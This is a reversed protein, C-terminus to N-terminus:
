VMRKLTQDILLEVKDVSLTPGHDMRSSHKMLQNFAGLQLGLSNKIEGSDLTEGCSFDDITSDDQFAFPLDDKSDEDHSRASLSFLKSDESDNWATSQLLKMNPRPMSTPSIRQMNSKHRALYTPTDPLSYEINHLLPDHLPSVSYGISSLDESFHYSRNSSDKRLALSMSTEKYTTSVNSSGSMYDMRPSSRSYTELYQRTPTFAFPLDPSAGLGYGEKSSNDSSGLKCSRYSHPYYKKYSSIRGEREPLSTTRTIDGHDAPSPRGTPCKTKYLRRYENRTGPIAMPSSLPMRQQRPAHVGLLEPSEETGLVDDDIRMKNSFMDSSPCPTFFAGDLNNELYLVQVKFEGDTTDVPALEYKGMMQPIDHGKVSSHIKYDINIDGFDSTEAARRVRQAPLIRLCSYLSRMLLSLRKYLGRPSERAAQARDIRLTNPKVLNPSYSIFWRELLTTKSHEVLPHNPECPCAFIDIVLPVVLQSAESKWAELIYKAGEIEDVHMNFWARKKRQKEDLKKTDLGKKAVRADLIVNAAKVFAQAFVQEHTVTEVSGQRSGSAMNEQGQEVTRVLFPDRLVKNNNSLLLTPNSWDNM